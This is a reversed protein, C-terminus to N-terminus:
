TGEESGVPQVLQRLRAQTAHLRDADFLTTGFLEDEALYESIAQKFISKVEFLHAIQDKRFQDMLTVKVREASLALLLDNVCPIASIGPYYRRFEAPTLNELSPRDDTLPEDPFEDSSDQAVERM